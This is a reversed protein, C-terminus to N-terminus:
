EEGQNFISDVEEDSVSTIEVSKLTDIDDLANPLKDVQKPDILKSM